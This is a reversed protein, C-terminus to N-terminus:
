HLKFAKVNSMTVAYHDILFSNVLQKAIIIKYWTLM